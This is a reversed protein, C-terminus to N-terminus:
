QILNFVLAYNQKWCEINKGKSQNTLIWCEIGLERDNMIATSPINIVLCHNTAILKANSNQPFFCKGDFSNMETISIYAQLM